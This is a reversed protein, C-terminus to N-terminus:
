RRRSRRKPAPEAAITEIGSSLPRGRRVERQEERPPSVLDELQADLANAVRALTHVTINTGNELQSVHQVSYRLREALVIQTIGRERRVEAIRRGVDRVVQEPVYRAGV